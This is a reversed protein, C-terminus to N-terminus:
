RGKAFLAATNPKDKLEEIKLKAIDEYFNRLHVRLLNEDKKDAAYFIKALLEMDRKEPPLQESVSIYEEIVKDFDISVESESNSTSSAVVASVRTPQFGEMLSATEPMKSFHKQKVNEPVDKLMNYLIEQADGYKNEQLAKNFKSMDTSSLQLESKWSIEKKAKLLKVAIKSESIDQETIGLDYFASQLIMTAVSDEAKLLTEGLIIPFDQKERFGTETLNKILVNYESVTLQTKVEQLDKAAGFLDGSRIKGNIKEFELQRIDSEISNLRSKVSKRTGMVRHFVSAPKSNTKQEISKCLGYLEKLETITLAERNDPNELLIRLATTVEKVDSLKKMENGSQVRQAWEMIHSKAAADPTSM